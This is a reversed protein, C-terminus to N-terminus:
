KSLNQKIIEFRFESPVTLKYTNATEEINNGLLAVRIFRLLPLCELPWMKLRTRGNSSHATLSM